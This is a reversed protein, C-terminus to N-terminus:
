PGGGMVFPVPAPPLKWAGLDLELIEDDECREIRRIWPVVEDIVHDPWSVLRQLFVSWEDQIQKGFVDLLGLM